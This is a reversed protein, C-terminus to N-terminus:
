KVHNVFFDTVIKVVEAQNPSFGHDLGEILHLESNSYIHNFRLSDTYPIVTDSYSHVLCVPGNYKEATEYIPLNMMTKIYNRGVARKKKFIKVTMPVNKPDFEADFIKGRVFDDRLIAAPAMLAICKVQSGLEGATMATVLGGQSHGGISVTTVEPLSRAYRFVKKADEIENPVTMQLFNGESKGHGNFDFRISAIGQAELSAAMEQLLKTEKSVNFGHLLMVLPYRSQNDPTQLIAALKGHDGQISINQTKASVTLPLFLCFALLAAFLNKFKM